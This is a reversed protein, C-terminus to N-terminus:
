YPIAKGKPRSTRSVLYKCSSKRVLVAKKEQRVLNSGKVSAVNTRWPPLPLAAHEDSFKKWSELQDVCAHLLMLNELAEMADKEDIEVKKSGINKLSEEASRQIRCDLMSKKQVGGHSRSMYVGIQTASNGASFLANALNQLCARNPDLLLPM